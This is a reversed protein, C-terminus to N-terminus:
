RGAIELAEHRLKLVDTALGSLDEEVGVTRKVL